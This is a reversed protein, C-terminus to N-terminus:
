EVEGEEEEEEKEERAVVWWEELQAENPEIINGTEGEAVGGMIGWTKRLCREEEEEVLESDCEGVEERERKAEEEMWETMDGVGERPEEM